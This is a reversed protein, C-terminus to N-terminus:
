EIKKFIRNWRVRDTRKDVSKWIRVAKGVIYEEPLLGWYRSDKSNEARDGAMFYYNKLFRYEAILSDGLYVNGAEHRLNGQREWEVINGYLKVTRGDMPIADGSKPIYLPGFEKVTWRILSDEPYARVGIADDALAQENILAMFRDQADVYGLTGAYGDVKYRGNVIRFTDGPLAVCRKVYYQMVDMEIRKWQKPCPYNFVVIDNRRMGGMGLLRKIEVQKGAVADMVNFLRAGYTLKDVLIVDGALLAPEMSDSPIHFSTVCFVQALLWLVVIGCFWLFLDIGKNVIKKLSASRKM